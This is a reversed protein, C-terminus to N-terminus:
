QVWEGNYNVSYGDVTTNVALAGSSYAYYWRGNVQFWGTTMSRRFFSWVTLYLPFDHPLMRWQCGTKTVYLTENFM